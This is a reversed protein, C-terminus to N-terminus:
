NGALFVVVCLASRSEPDERNAIGVLIEHIGAWIVLMQNSFLFLLTRFSGACSIELLTTQAM